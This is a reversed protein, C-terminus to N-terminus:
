PGATPARQARIRELLELTERRLAKVQAVLGESVRHTGAEAVRALTEDCMKVTEELQAEARDVIFPDDWEARQAPIATLTPAAARSGGSRPTWPNRSPRAARTWPTVRPCAERPLGSAARTRRRARRARPNLAAAQARLTAAERPSAVLPVPM